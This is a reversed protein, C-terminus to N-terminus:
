YERVGYDEVCQNLIIAAVLVRTIQRASAPGVFGVSEGAKEEGQYSNVRIHCEYVSDYDRLRIGHSGLLRERVGVGAVAPSNVVHALGRTQPRCLAFPNV